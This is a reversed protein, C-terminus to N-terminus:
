GFSEPYRWFDKYRTALIADGSVEVADSDIRNWLFLFLREAPARIVIDAPESRDSVTTSDSDFRVFWLRGGDSQEFLFTQGEGAAAAGLGRAFPLQVDFHQDIGDLALDQPIPTVENLANEVDWRHVVAEIAQNRIHTIMGDDGSWHWVHEDSEMEEFAEILGHSAAVFWELLCHPIADLDTTGGEFAAFWERLGPCREFTEPDLEEAQKARSRIQLAWFYQVEAVHAVVSAVFWGPCTPVPARLGSAAADALRSSDAAIAELYRSKTLGDDM